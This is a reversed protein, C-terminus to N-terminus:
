NKNDETLKITEEIFEKHLNFDFKHMSYFLFVTAFLLLIYYYNTGFFTSYLCCSIIILFWATGAIDHYALTTIILEGENKKSEYISIATVPGIYRRNFPREKLFITKDIENRCILGRPNSEKPFGDKDYIYLTNQRVNNVFDSAKIKTKYRKLYIPLFYM